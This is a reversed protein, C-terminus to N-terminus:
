LLSGGCPGPIMTNIPVYVFFSLFLLIIAYLIITKAKNEKEKDRKAYFYKVIGFIIALLSALLIFILIMNLIDLVMTCNDVFDAAFAINAFFVLFLVFFIEYFGFKKM